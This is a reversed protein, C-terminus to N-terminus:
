LRPQHAARAQSSECATTLAGIYAALIMARYYRPKIKARALQKVRQTESTLTMCVMHRRKFCPKDNTVVRTMASDSSACIQFTASCSFYALSSRWSSDWSTASDHEEHDALQGERHPQTHSTSVKPRTHQAILSLTHRTTADRQINQATINQATIHQATINQATIGTVM